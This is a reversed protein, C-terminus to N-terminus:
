VNGMGAIGDEDVGSRIATMPPPLIPLVNASSASLGTRTGLNCAIFGDYVYSSDSRIRNESKGSPSKTM